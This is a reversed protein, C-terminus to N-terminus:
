CDVERQSLVELCNVKLERWAVASLVDNPEFRKDASREAETEKQSGVKAVDFHNGSLVVEYGLQVEVVLLVCSVKQGLSGIAHIHKRLIVKFHMVAVHANVDFYATWCVLVQQVEHADFDYVLVRGLVL